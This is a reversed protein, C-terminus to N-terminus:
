FRAGLSGAAGGRTPHLDFRWTSASAKASPRVLLLATGVGVAVIGVGLSVGAAVYKAQVSDVDDQKCSPACVDRLTRADGNAKLDFYLAAGLAVAGLGILGYAVIPPGPKGPPAEPRHEDGSTPPASRTFTVTIPRNREGERVLVQEEVPTAGASEYKFRHPGPDLVLPKGDLSEVVVVGDISVRVALLDHGTGDRAAVVVSPIANQLEGMWQACDQRVLAPCEQRSCVLLQERASRLKAEARLQQAKEYASVCAQKDEARAGGATALIAIMAVSIALHTRM